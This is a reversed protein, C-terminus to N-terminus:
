TSIDEFKQPQKMKGVLTRPPSAKFCGGPRIVLCNVVAAPFFFMVIKRWINSDMRSAVGIGIGSPCPLESDGFMEYRRSLYTSTLRGALAEEHTHM